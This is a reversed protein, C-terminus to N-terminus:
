FAGPLLALGLLIFGLEILWFRIVVQTEPWGSLEFHHHLPAMRFVRRRTTKYSVVQIIDSLAELVFVGGLIVLLLETKTYVALSALLAGLALSGTDGMFVLAPYSNFWIFGLCAGVGAAALVALGPDGSHGAVVVYAVLTLATLGAALGDLGDSLNVANTTGTYVGILLLVYLWPPLSLLHGNLPWILDPGLAPDRVVYIGIVAAIIVQALLKQRAKLGLSRHELTKLLDDALGIFGYALTAFIAWAMGPTRPGVVLAAAVLPLLLFVGGMTPTGTKVAHTAPGDDRVVQGMKLRGLFRIAPVGALLTLLFALGGAFVYQM